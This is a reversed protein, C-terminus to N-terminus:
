GGDDGFGWVCVWSEEMEARRGGRKGPGGHGARRGPARRRGCGCRPNKGQSRSRAPGAAPQARLREAGPRAPGPRPRYATELRQATRGPAEPTCV